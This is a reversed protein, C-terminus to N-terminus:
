LQRYRKPTYVGVTDITATATAHLPDQIGLALSTRPHGCIFLKQRSRLFYKSMRTLFNQRGNKTM